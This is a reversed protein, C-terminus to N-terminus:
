LDEKPQVKYTQIVLLKYSHPPTPLFIGSYNGKNGPSTKWLSSFWGKLSSITPFRSIKDPPHIDKLVFSHPVSSWPSFLFAGWASDKGCLNHGNLWLSKSLSHDSITKPIPSPAPLHNLSDSPMTQLCLKIQMTGSCQLSCDGSDFQFCGGLM